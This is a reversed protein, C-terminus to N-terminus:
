AYITLHISDQLPAGKSGNKGIKYDHQGVEAQIIRNLITIFSLRYYLM